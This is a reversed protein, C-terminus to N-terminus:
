LYLRHKCRREKNTQCQIKQHQIKQHQAKQHQTKNQEQECLQEECIIGEHHGKTNTISPKNMSIDKNIHTTNKKTTM